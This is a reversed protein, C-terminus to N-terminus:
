PFILWLIYFSRQTPQRIVPRGRVIFLIYIYLYILDYFLTFNVDSELNVAYIDLYDVRSACFDTSPFIYVDLHKGALINRAFTTPARTAYDSCYYPSCTKLMSSPSRNNCITVGSIITNQLVKMCRTLQKSDNLFMVKHICSCLGESIGIIAAASERLISLVSYGHCHLAVHPKSPSLSSSTGITIKREPLKINFLSGLISIVIALMLAVKTFTQSCVRLSSKLFGKKSVFSHKQAYRKRAIPKNVEIDRITVDSDHKIVDSEIDDDNTSGPRKFKVEEKEMRTKLPKLTLIYLCVEKNVYKIWSYQRIQATPPTPPRPPSAVPTPFGKSSKSFGDSSKPFRDASKPADCGSGRRGSRQMCLDFLVSGEISKIPSTAEM